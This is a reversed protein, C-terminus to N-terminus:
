KKRAAKRPKATHVIEPRKGAIVDLSPGWLVRGGTILDTLKGVVEISRTVFSFFPFSSFASGRPLGRALGHRGRLEPLHYQPLRRLRHILSGGSLSSNYVEIDAFGNDSLLRRVFGPTFCYEHFVLFRAIIREVNLKKSVKFLFSHPFGNPFRLYLIGDSKLLLKARRVEKWPEV